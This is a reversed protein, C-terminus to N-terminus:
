KLKWYLPRDFLTNDAVRRPHTGDIDFEYLDYRIARAKDALVLFHKGDQMVLPSHLFSHENTLQTPHGGDHDMSWVEYDYAVAADSVYIIHKGDPTFTPESSHGNRTLPKVPDKGTLGVKFVDVTPENSEGHNADFVITQNDPAFRPPSVMYYEGSTLRRVGTGDSRMVYIDWHDWTWGGMSYPRHLLARAFVIQTGDASFSAMDDYVGAASTLRKCTQDALSYTYIHSATSGPSVAAYIIQHGDPSFAPTDKRGSSRTLDHSRMSVLDLMRLGNGGASDTSFVISKGDPALAFAVDQRSKEQYFLWSAGVLGVAVGTVLVMRLVTKLFSM